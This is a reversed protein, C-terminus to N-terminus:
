HYVVLSNQTNESVEIQSQHSFKNFNILSKQEITQGSDCFLVLMKIHM